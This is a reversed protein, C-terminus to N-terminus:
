CLTVHKTSMKLEALNVAVRTDIIIATVGVSLSHLRRAFHGLLLRAAVLEITRAVAILELCAFQRDDALTDVIRAGLGADRM